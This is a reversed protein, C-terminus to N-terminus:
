HRGKKQGHKDPVRHAPKSDPKAGSVQVAAAVTAGPRKGDRIAQLLVAMAWSAAQTAAASDLNWDSILREYTTPLWQVDLMAAAMEREAESWTATDAAMASLLGHRRRQAGSLRGPDRIAAPAAAFTPLSAFMHSTAAVLNDPHLTEYSIGAEEELRRLIAEQLERETAFYRYVTRESIKARQAVARTTLESWQWNKLRHALYSGADLIRAKTEGLQAKRLPSDYRRRVAAKRSTKKSATSVKRM